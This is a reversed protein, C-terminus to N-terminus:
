FHEQKNIMDWNATYFMQESVNLHTWISTLFTNTEFSFLVINYISLIM